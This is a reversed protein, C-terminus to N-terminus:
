NITGNTDDGAADLPNAPKADPMDQGTTDPVFAPVSAGSTVHALWYQCDQKAGLIANLDAQNGQLKAVCDKEMNTLEIFRANIKKIMEDPTM